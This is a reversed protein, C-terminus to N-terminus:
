RAPVPRLLHRVPDGGPCHSLLRAHDCWGTPSRCVQEILSHHVSSLLVSAGFAVMLLLVAAIILGISGLRYELFARLYKVGYARRLIDRITEIFSAATWLGVIAGFWLLPGTRATLM